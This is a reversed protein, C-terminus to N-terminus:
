WKSGLAKGIAGGCRILTARARKGRFRITRRLRKTEERHLGKGYALIPMFRFESTHPLLNSVHETGKQLQDVVHSGSLAGGKFEIPVICVGSTGDGVFLFDCRTVDTLGLEKCDMDIIVRADPAGHLSLSCRDRDCKAIQCCKPFIDRVAEVYASM